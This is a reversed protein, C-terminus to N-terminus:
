RGPRKGAATGVAASVEFLKELMAALESAALSELESAEGGVVISVRPREEELSCAPAGALLVALCLLRVGPPGKM